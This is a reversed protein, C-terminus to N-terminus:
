HISTSIVDYDDFGGVDDDLTVVDLEGKGDITLYSGEFTDSEASNCGLLRMVNKVPIMTINHKTLARVVDTLMNKVRKDMEAFDEISIDDLKIKMSM